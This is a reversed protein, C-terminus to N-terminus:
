HRYTDDPPLAGPHGCRSVSGRHFDWKGFSLKLRFNGSIALHSSSPGPVFHGKEWGSTGHMRSALSPSMSNRCHLWSCVEQTVPPLPPWPVHEPSGQAGPCCPRHAAWLSHIPPCVSPLWPRRRLRGGAEGDQAVHAPLGRCPAVQMGTVGSLDSLVPASRPATQPGHEKHDGPEMM